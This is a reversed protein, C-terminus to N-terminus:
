GLLKMPKTWPPLSPLVQQNEIHPSGEFEPDVAIEDVPSMLKQIEWLVNLAKDQSRSM